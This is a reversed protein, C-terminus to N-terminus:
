YRFYNVTFGTVPEFGCPELAQPESVGIQVAQVPRTVGETGGSKKAYTSTIYIYKLSFLYIYIYANCTNCIYM